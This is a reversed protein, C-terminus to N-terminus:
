QQARKRDQRWMWVLWIPGTIYAAVTAVAAAAFLLVDEAQRKM